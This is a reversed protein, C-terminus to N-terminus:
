PAAMDTKMTTSPDGFFMARLKLLFENLYPLILMLLWIAEEGLVYNTNDVDTVGWQLLQGQLPSPIALFVPNAELRSGRKDGVPKVCHIM